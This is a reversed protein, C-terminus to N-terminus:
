KVKGFAKSFLSGVNKILNGSEGKKNNTRVNPSREDDLLMLGVAAAFEPREVEDNMGGLGIPKGVCAAMGLAQKTYEVIGKLGATGGTLVVGSPLKGACGAKKLAKQIAEFLEELRAEVIEDIDATSFSHNEKDIEVSITEHEVRPVALAHKLKVEEAIKPNTKLGIALDNTINIGGVPLVATFQLDGEEFIAINTTAGGIDILGVGSEMQQETLVARAAAMGPTVISNVEMEIPEIMKQLNALHPTLVSVVHADIELRTGTMGHPDKINEQGDLRYSHPVIDIIERNPPVKGVTAVEEVRALDDDNIEHDVGGVAIMGDANTSLVHTGNISISASKVHYGSLREAKDLAEDIAQAPGNLSVVVGKRMGSNAASGVGVVTPVNTTPDLHAVVARVTTTGIDLGVAYRSNEQMLM